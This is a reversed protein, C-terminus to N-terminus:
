SDYVMLKFPSGQIPVAECSIKIVYEGPQMANYFVEHKGNKMDKCIAECQYIESTSQKIISVEFSDGGNIRDRGQYDKAHITFSVGKQKVAQHVSDGTM